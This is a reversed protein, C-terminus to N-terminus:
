NNQKSNNEFKGQIAVTLKDIEKQLEKINVYITKVEALEKNQMIAQKYNIYENSLLTQLRNLNSLSKEM